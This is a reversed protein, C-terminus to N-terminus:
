KSKHLLNKQYCSLIYASLFFWLIKVKCNSHSFHFHSGIIINGLIYLLQFKWRKQHALSNTCDSQLYIYCNKGFCFMHMVTFSLLAMWPFTYPYIDMVFIYISICGIYPCIHSGLIDLFMYSFARLLAIQLLWCSHQLNHYYNGKAPFLALSVSCSM